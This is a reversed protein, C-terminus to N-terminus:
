ARSPTKEHFLRYNAVGASGADVVTTVGYAMSVDPAVGLISGSRFVHTHVDILGPLVYRGKADIVHKAERGEVDIDAIHGDKIGIDIVSDIKEAPDVVHGNRILFDLM